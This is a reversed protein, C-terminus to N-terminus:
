QLCGQTQNEVYRHDGYVGNKQFKELLSLECPIINHSTLLVNWFPQDRFSTQSSSYHRWFEEVILNYYKNNPDYGLATNLYFKNLANLDVSPYEEMFFEYTRRLSALSDKNRSMIARLESVISRGSEVSNPHLDQALGFKSNKITHSLEAWDVNEKPSWHADCYYILDYNKKLIKHAYFKTFRSKRINCDLNKIYKSKSINVIDWDTNYYGETKDTFLFYDFREDKIFTSPLNGREGFLSSTFCIKM